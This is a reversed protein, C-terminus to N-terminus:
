FFDIEALASARRLKLLKRTFMLQEGPALSVHPRIVIRKLLPSCAFLYKILYVENESGKFNRLEVSQLETINYEVEPIPIPDAEQQIAFIVLTQLNPSSKILEFAFSFNVGNGIDIGLLKLTKLSPFATPFRKKAGGETLKYGHFGLHLGQLKPLSDLLEFINYSSVTTTTNTNLGSLSFALLKLNKLEAIEALKVKRANGSHYLILTELLPCRTFFEGLESTERALELRLLNPFGHFTPPLNFCCNYLKLRKLELCSFLHSPMKVQARSSNQLTLDKIGKRSLFLIWHNIKENDLMPFNLLVFKTIAGNLHFLIRSVISGYNNIDSQTKSLLYKFFYDDFVLQSLMNWKFRWNRALISTRVADQIPLRDLINTVVNDPMKSIFDEKPAILKPAKHTVEM